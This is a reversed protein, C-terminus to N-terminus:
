NIFIQFSMCFVTIPFNSFYSIFMKNYYFVSCIFNKTCGAEPSLFHYCALVLNLFPLAWWMRNLALNACGREGPHCLSVIQMICIDEFVYKCEELLRDKSSLEAIENYNIKRM